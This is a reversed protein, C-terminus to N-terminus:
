LSNRIEKMETLVQRKTALQANINSAMESMMNRCEAKLAVEKEFLAFMSSSKIDAITKDTRHIHDELQAIKRILRVLRTGVDDLHEVDPRSNWDDVVAQLRSEDGAEYACNVEAMAKHRQVADDNDKALDPHIRKAAERYLKKLNESPQSDPRAQAREGRSAEKASESADVRLKRLRQELRQDHPSLFLKLEAIEAELADLEAYLVGVELLYRHEFAQLRNQLITLELQREALM